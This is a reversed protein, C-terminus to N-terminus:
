PSYQEGIRGISLSHTACILSTGTRAANNSIGEVHEDAGFELYIGDTYDIASQAKDPGILSPLDNYTVILSQEDLMTGQIRPWPCMYTCVQERMFGALWFTTATLLAVTTYAVPAATGSITGVLTLFIGFSLIKKRM